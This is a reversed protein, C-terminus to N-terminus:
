GSNLDEHNGITGTVLRRTPELVRFRESTRSNGSDTSFVAAVNFARAELISNTKEGISWLM